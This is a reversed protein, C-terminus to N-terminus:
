NVRESTCVRLYVVAAYAAESSGSFGHLEYHAQLTTILRPVRLSALIPLEQHYQYWESKADEPIIDDWGVKLVWLYKMLRKLDTTVPALLGLLDYIRAIESLIARKSYKVPNPQYKYCLSDANPDWNLGLVKTYTLEHEKFTVPLTQQHDLSINGLLKAFFISYRDVYPVLSLFLNEM